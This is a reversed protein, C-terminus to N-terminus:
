LSSCDLNRQSLSTYEQREPSSYDLKLNQLMKRPITTRIKSSKPSYTDKWAATDTGTGNTMMDQHGIKSCECWFGDTLSRESPVPEELLYPPIYQSRFAGAEKSSVM